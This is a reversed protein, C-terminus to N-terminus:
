VGELMSLFLRVSKRFLFLATDKPSNMIIEEATKLIDSPELGFRRVVFLADSLDEETARRLKAIVFDLPHLVKVALSDNKYIIETRDRYGSPMPVISWGSIDEGIDAPIGHQKLFDFLGEVNGKIEADLDITAREKMGYHQMALGGILILELGGKENAAFEKLKHLIVEIDVQFM